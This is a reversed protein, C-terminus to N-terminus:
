CFNSLTHPILRCSEVHRKTFFFRKGSPVTRNNRTFCPSSSCPILIIILILSPKHKNGFCLQFHTELFVWIGCRVITITMSGKSEHPVGTQRFHKQVKQPIELTQSKGIVSCFLNVNGSRTESHLTCGSHKKKLFTMNIIIKCPFFCSKGLGGSRFMFMVCHLVFTGSHLHKTTHIAERPFIRHGISFSRAPQLLCIFLMKCYFM